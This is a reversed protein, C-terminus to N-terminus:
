PATANIACGTSWYLQGGSLAMSSPAAQGRALNVATSNLGPPTKEVLGDEAFYFDTSNDGIFATLTGGGNSAAIQENSQQANPTAANSRISDTNSWYVVGNRLVLGGLYPEGQSRAVRTCNVMLLGEGSPDNPDRKGCSAVTGEVVTVIDLDGNLDTLFAITDGDMALATPLGGLEERAVDFAVGTPVVGIARVTTGASYFVETGRPVAALGRIGGTANVETVVDSPTGGSALVMRITSTTMTGAVTSNVWFLYPGAAIILGPNVEHPAITTQACTKSLSKVTGHGQDTWYLVDPTSALHLSVCGPADPIVSTAAPGCAGANCTATSACARDCGGCNDPDFTVDTCMEDCVTPTEIQCACTGIGNLMFAGPVCRGDSLTPSGGIVSADGSSAHVGADFPGFVCSPAASGGSGMTAVDPAADVEETGADAGSAGAAAGGAQGAGAQAGDGLHGAAGARGAAGSGGAGATGLQHPVLDTSSGCAVAVTAVLTLLLGRAVNMMVDVISHRADRM